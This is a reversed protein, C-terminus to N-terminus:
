EDLMEKLRKKALDIDKKPTKQTKKQFAHFILIKDKVKTFYFVRYIGDKDKLRIEHAGKAVSPMAKSLPMGISAGHQLELITKGLAKKIGIPFSRITEQISHHFATRKMVGLTDSRPRTTLTVEYPPRIIIFATIYELTEV